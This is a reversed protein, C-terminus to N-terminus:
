NSIPRLRRRMRLIDQALEEHYVHNAEIDLDTVQDVLNGVVYARTLRTSVQALM